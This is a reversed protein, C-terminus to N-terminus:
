LRKTALIPGYNAAQILVVIKDKGEAVRDPIPIIFEALSDDIDSTIKWIGINSISTVVNISELTRNACEGRSVYNSSINALHTIILVDVIEGQEGGSFYARERETPEATLRLHLNKDGDAGVTSQSEIKVHVSSIENKADNIGKTVKAYNSGVQSSFNIM